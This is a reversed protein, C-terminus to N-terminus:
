SLRLHPKVHNRMRILVTKIEYPKFVIKEPDLNGTVRELLDAEYISEYEGNIELSARTEKGHTEWMRIVITNKDDESWKLAELLIGPNKIEMFSESVTKGKVIRVPVNFEQAIRPVQGDIWSGRHPYVAYEVHAKGYDLFPNPFMPSRLITIGIVNELASYGQLGRNIIAVGYDTDWLDGWRSAPVEFKAADWPNSPKNNREIVGYPIEYTAHEGKIGLIFENRLVIFRERWDADVEFEIIRSHDKVHILQTVLSKKFEYTLRVTARLPGREVVEISKPLLVVCNRRYWGELNWGSWPIAIDECAVLRSERIVERNVEKDYVRLKGDGYYVRIISNEIFGETDNVSVDGTAIGDGIEYSVMGMPPANVKVIYRNDGIRQAPYGKLPKNLEIMVERSWPLSNFVTYWNDDNTVAGNLISKIEENVRNFVDVLRSMIDDYANKTNTAGMPDHYEAELLTHWYDEYSRRVNLLVSWIELDRLAVELERVMKKMSTGNSYVGRHTELYLEGHWVPLDNSRELIKVYNAPDEIMILPTGPVTNIVRFREMSIWTTSGGGDTRGFPQFAPLDPKTHFQLARKIDNPHFEGWFQQSNITIIRTGDIGEWQFVSYPFRNITSWSLKAEFFAKIGSKKLIQPLSAPFGFTDPLWGVEATRGFERLLFRQGYLFQRVLSEGGPLNADFEVWSGGVLVILGSNVAEKFKQFLRPDDSKLWNLFAVNSWAFKAEPYQTIISLMDGVTRRVKQRTVDVPWLWALDLHSYGITYLIGRKGMYNSLHNLEEDLVKLAEKSMRELEDIDPPRLFSLEEVTYYAFISGLFDPIPRIYQTMYKLFMSIQKPSVTTILVKDLSKNLIILLSNRLDEFVEAIESIILAKIALRFTNPAHYVVYMGNYRVSRGGAYNINSLCLRVNHPGPNLRFIRNETYAAYVKDDIELTADGDFDIFLWPDLDREVEISADICSGSNNTKIEEYKVISAAMLLAIKARITNLDRYNINIM